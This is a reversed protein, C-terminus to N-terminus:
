SHTIIKIANGFQASSNTDETYLLLLVSGTIFLVIAWVWWRDKKEEEENFYETMLTNTTEKDGVLINHESQPRLVREAKVPQVLDKPLEFPVFNIDGNGSVTFNGVGALKAGSHTTMSQKLGDCFHDLASAAEYQDSNTQGAVFSLFAASDTEGPILVISAVPANIIKNTFDAQAGAGSLSLKGIGPLPCSKHQFLYSAILQHM